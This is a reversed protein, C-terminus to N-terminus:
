VDVDQYRKYKDNFVKILFCKTWDTRAVTLAIYLKISIINQSDLSSVIHENVVITNLSFLFNDNRFRTQKGLIFLICNRDMSDYNFPSSSSVLPTILIRLDFFFLCCLHGFPFFSLCHDTFCVCLVLSWFGGAGSFVPPSSLNNISNETHSHMGNIREINVIYDFHFTKFIGFPTVLLRLDFFSLCYLSWFFLYLLVSM